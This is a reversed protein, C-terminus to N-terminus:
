IARRNLFEQVFDAVLVGIFNDINGTVYFSFSEKYDVVSFSNTHINSSPKYPTRKWGRAYYNM